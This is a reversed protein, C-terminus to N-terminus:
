KANRQEMWGFKKQRTTRASWTEDLFYIERNENRYNKIAELYLCRWKVIRTTKLIAERKNITKFKFGIKKLWNRLTNRCCAINYEM